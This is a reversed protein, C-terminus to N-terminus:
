RSKRSSTVTYGASAWSSRKTSRRVNSRYSLVMGVIATGVPMMVWWSCTVVAHCHTSQRLHQVALMLKWSLRVAVHSQFVFFMNAATVLIAFMTVTMGYM